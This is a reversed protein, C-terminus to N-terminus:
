YHVPYKLGPASSKVTYNKGNWSVYQKSIVYVTRSIRLDNPFSTFAVGNIGDNMVARYKRKQSDYVINVLYGETIGNTTQYLSSGGVPAIRAVAAQVEQPTKLPIISPQRSPSSSNKGAMYYIMRIIKPLINDNIYEWDVMDETDDPVSNKSILSDIEGKAKDLAKEETDATTSLSEIDPQYQDLVLPFYLASSVGRNLDTLTIIPVGRYIEDALDKLSDILQLDTFQKM